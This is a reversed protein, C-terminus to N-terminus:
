RSGVTRQEDVAGQSRCADCCIASARLGEASVLWRDPRGGTAWGWGAPCLAERQGLVGQPGRRTGLCAEGGTGGVSYVTDEKRASGMRKKWLGEGAPLERLSAAPPPDDVSALVGALQLLVARSVQAGGLAGRVQEAEVPGLGVGLLVAAMQDPYHAAPVARLALARPLYCPARRGPPPAPSADAPCQLRSLAQQLREPGPPPAPAM